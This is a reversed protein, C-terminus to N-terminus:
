NKIVLKQSSLLHNGDGYILLMYTGEALSLNWNIKSGSLKWQHEVIGNPNILVANEISQNNTFSQISLEGVFRTDILNPYIFCNKDSTNGKYTTLPYFASKLISDLYLRHLQQPTTIISRTFYENSLYFCNSDCATIAEVQHFPLNLGVKRKCGMSFNNGAFQYDLYLFPQLLSSYGCLVIRNPNPLYTAGTVLGMVDLSDVLIAVASDAYKYIRYIHCKESKWEKTFLYISDKIVLFAECDFDTNNPGSATFNNQTAYRFFLTDIRLHNSFLSDKLIRLFHLDQRNGSANNGIDGVFIYASDQQIEEWDTNLVHSLRISDTISATAPNIIYLLSDNSDNQSYLQNNWWMLGSSEILSAPLLLSTDVSVNIPAYVCSGDNSNATPSYNLAYPDTCGLVQAKSEYFSILGLLLLLLYRM